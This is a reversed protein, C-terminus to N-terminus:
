SRTGKIFFGGGDPLAIMKEPKDALHEDCARTAGPCTGFGYDDCVLVGGLVLRDYFFAISDRTPEYLDVDIHVFCFSEGQVESFRSPIWGRYFKVSDGFEALSSQVEDLGCALAGRSWYPLDNDGPDSLGEFSDFVHHVRARGGGNKRNAEAILWSSAGKYVGCEATDGSLGTVLRVLQKVTWKRHANPSRPEGFKELLKEFEPDAWWDVQYWGLRYVPMIKAACEVLLDFRQDQTLGSLAADNINVIPSTLRRKVARTLRRIM